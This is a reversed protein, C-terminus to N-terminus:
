GRRTLHARVNRRCRRCTAAMTAVGSLVPYDVSLEEYLYGVLYRHGLGVKAHESTSGDLFRQRERAVAECRDLHDGLHDHRDRLGDFGLATLPMEDAAALWERASAFAESAADLSAAERELATAMTRLQWRRDTASEVVQTKCQPTLASGTTPALAMAVEESLEAALTEFVSATDDVGETKRVTADFAERVAACGDRRTTAALTPGVPGPAEGGTGGTPADRVRDVFADYARLKATVADREDDVVTRAAPVPTDLTV